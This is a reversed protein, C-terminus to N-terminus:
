PGDAQDPDDGSLRDPETQRRSRGIAPLRKHLRRWVSERGRQAPQKIVPRPWEDLGVTKRYAYGVWLRLSAVTPAALLLGLVGGLIGGALAAVLVILPHLNLSHGIIRPVLINNEIQQLLVALGLVLLAYALTSIGFWNSGQFLAVLVALLGAVVPGFIPVFEMLGAILGLGLAFRLGLASFMVASTVGMVIALILQGRLFAQWVEGTEALLRSFDARYDRPILELFAEDLLGFDRLLYYAMFLILLTLGVTTATAGLASALLSGTQSLLPQLASALSETLPGLNVTALDLSWPGLTLTQRGLEELLGPLQRSLNTLDGVLAAVQQSVVLGVGTTAAGLVLLMVVFTLLVAGERPLRLRRQAWTVLPHLLYSLLLALLLPGILQQLNLVLIAAAIILLVAVALRTGTQWPPSTIEPLRNPQRTEDTM